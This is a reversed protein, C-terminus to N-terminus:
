LSWGLLATLTFARDSGGDAPADSAAGDFRLFTQEVSFRALYTFGVDLSGGLSVAADFGLGDSGAGFADALAGLGLVYRFGAELGLRLRPGLLDYSGVLAPRLVPYASSPIVPNSGLVFAEYLFGVRVGFGGRDFPHVYGTDIGVRYAKTDVENASAPESSSLAAAMAFTARLSLGGAARGYAALPRVELEVPIELFLGSEYRRKGGSALDIEARRARGAVGALVTVYPAHREANRGEAKSGDLADDDARPSAEPHEDETPAAPAARTASGALAEAIAERAARGVSRRGKASVSAQTTREAARAGDAGHVRIRVRLAKGRGTVEGDVLLDLGLAEAVTARGSPTGLDTGMQRAKAEVQRRPVLDLRDGAARVVVNRVAAGARGEFALIVGKPEPERQAHVPLAHGLFVATSLIPIWARM